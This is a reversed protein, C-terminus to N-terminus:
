RFGFCHGCTLMAARARCSREFVNKRKQCVKVRNRSLGVVNAQDYAGISPDRTARALFKSRTEGSKTSICWRSDGKDTMAFRM